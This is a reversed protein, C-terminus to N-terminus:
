VPTLAPKDTFFADVNAVFLDRMAGRSEFTASGRHHSLVVNELDFLAAPPNALDNYVDLAAAGLKGEVLAKVLAEEDVLTGRGINVLTGQPGLAAIIEANVMLRTAEGGPAVLLLVDTNLALEMLTAYYHYAVDSRQKRNHYAIQMGFAEARKAVGLGIKGLGVIGLTMGRVSHAFAMIPGSSKGARIFRDSALVRRVATLILTMGLDAVDECMVDPTNTLVINRERLAAIDIKEYGAGYISVQKLKPLANILSAPMSAHSTGVMCTINNAVQALLAAPDAAKHYDHLTYKQLLLAKADEPLFGASFLEPLSHNSKQM